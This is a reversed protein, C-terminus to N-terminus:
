EDFQVHRPTHLAEAYKEAVILNGNSPILM